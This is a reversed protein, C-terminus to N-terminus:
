NPILTTRHDDYIFISDLFTSYNWPFYDTFLFLDPSAPEEQDSPNIKSYGPHLFLLPRFDEGASPYWAIRPNGDFSDLFKKFAGNNNGNLETLLQRTM